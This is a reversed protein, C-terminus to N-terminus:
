AEIAEREDARSAVARRLAIFYVILAATVVIHGLGAIGSIMAGSEQGLVTLIGHWVMMAATIVVGVCYLSFFWSFLKPSVQEVRFVKELALATLLIMFGLTILHTHVVGLQTFQGEPFDNLKTFERYFVGAALGLFLFTFAANLLKKM